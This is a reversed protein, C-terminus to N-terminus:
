PHLFHGAKNRLMTTLRNWLFPIAFRVYSIRDNMSKVGTYYPFMFIKSRGQFHLNYFAINKDARLNRGYPLNNKFSIKKINNFLISRTTRYEKKYYNDGSNFNLDFCYKEDVTFAVNGITEKNKQYFLYLLTMDCIGGNVRNENHWKWKDKLEDIRYAYQELIFSCLKMLGKQTWFSCGAGAMWRKERFEQEPIHYCAEYTNLFSNAIVDLDTYVMVDSDLHFLYDLNERVM